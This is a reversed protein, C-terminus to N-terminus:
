WWKRWPATMSFSHGAHAGIAFCWCGGKSLPQLWDHLVRSPCTLPSLPTSPLGGLAASSHLRAKWLALGTQAWLWYSETRTHTIRLAAAADVLSKIASPVMSGPSLPSWLFWCSPTLLSDFYWGQFTLLNLICSGIHKAQIKKHEGLPIYSLFKHTILDLLASEPLLYLRFSLSAPHWRNRQM